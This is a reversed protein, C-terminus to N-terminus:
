PVAAVELVLRGGTTLGVVHVVQGRRMWSERQPAVYPDRVTTGPLIM